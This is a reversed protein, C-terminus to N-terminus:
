AFDGILIWFIISFRVISIKAFILIKEIQFHCNPNERLGLELRQYEMGHAACQITVPNFTANARRISKRL